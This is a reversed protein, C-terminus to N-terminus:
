RIYVELRGREKKLFKVFVLFKGTFMTSKLFSLVASFTLKTPTTESPAFIPRALVRGVRGSAVAKTLGKYVM